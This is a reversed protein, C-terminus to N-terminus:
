PLWHARHSVVCQSHALSCTAGAILCDDIRIFNFCLTMVDPATVDVESVKRGEGKEEALVVSDDTVAVKAM